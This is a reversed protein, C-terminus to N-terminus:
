VADSGMNWGPMSGTGWDVSGLKGIQVNSDTEREACQQLYVDQSSIIAPPILAQIKEEHGLMKSFLVTNDPTFSADLETLFRKRNAVKRRNTLIRFHGLTNLNSV